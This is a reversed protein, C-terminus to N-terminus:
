GKNGGSRRRRSGPRARSKVRQALSDVLEATQKIM